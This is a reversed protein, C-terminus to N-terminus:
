PIITLAQRGLQVWAEEFDKKDIRKNKETDLPDNIYVYQDTYGTLLVSHQRYTVQREGMNTKWTRFEYDPLKRFSANTLIWVPHEKDIAKYLDEPNSGTLDIICNESIYLKALELIPKIHVGLGPMDIDYMDGVFGEDMNGMFGNNQFPVYKINEALELKDVSLSNFNLLMALSTVECGRELEPNQLILPVELPNNEKSSLKKEDIKVLKDMEYTTNKVSNNEGKHVLTIICLVTCLIILLYINKHRQM